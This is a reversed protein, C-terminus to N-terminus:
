YKTGTTVYATVDAHGAVVEMYIGSACQISPITDYRCGNQGVNITALITGTAAASNYLRITTLTDSTTTAAVYVGVLRQSADTGTLLAASAAAAKSSYAIPDLVPPTAWAPRSLVTTVTVLAALVMGLAALKIKNM